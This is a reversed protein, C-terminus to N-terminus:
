SPRGGSSIPPHFIFQIVTGDPDRAYLSRAGDRHTRPPSVIPVGKEGLYRAWADVDEPRPLVIGLHDLRDKGGLRADPPAKHIALNDRGTTLYVNDPDPEWEVRFGLVDRYFDRAREVSAVNLAVHFLGDLPPRAEPVVTEESV